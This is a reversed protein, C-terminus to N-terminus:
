GPGQILPFRASEDRLWATIDQSEGSWPAAWSSDVQFPYFNAPCRSATIEFHDFAVNARKLTRFVEVWPVSEVDVASVVIETVGVVKRLYILLDTINQCWGGELKVRRLSKCRELIKGPWLQQYQWFWDYCINAFTIEEITESGAEMCEDLLDLWLSDHRFLDETQTEILLNLIVKGRAVAASRIATLQHLNHHWKREYRNWNMSGTTRTQGGGISQIVLAGLKFLQPQKRATDIIIRVPRLGESDHVTTGISPKFPEPQLLYPHFPQSRWARTRPTRWVEWYAAPDIYTLRSRSLITIHRLKPFSSIYQTFYKQDLDYAKNQRFISAEGLWFRYADQISAAAAESRLTRTPLPTTQTLRDTYTQVGAIWQDFTTDDWVLSTPTSVVTGATKGWTALLKFISLDTPHSSIYIRRFLYPFLHPSLPKFSLRLAKITSNDLHTTFLDFTAYCSGHLHLLIAPLDM